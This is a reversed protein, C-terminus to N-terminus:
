SCFIFFMPEISSISPMSGPTSAFARAPAFISSFCIACVSAMMWDIVGFSLSLGEMM